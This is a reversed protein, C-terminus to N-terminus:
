YKSRASLARDVLAVATFGPQPTDLCIALLPHGSLYSLSHSQPRSAPRPQRKSRRPLGLCSAGSRRRRPAPLSSAGSEQSGIVAGIDLTQIAIEVVRGGCRTPSITKHRPTQNLSHTPATPGRIGLNPYRHNRNSLRPVFP